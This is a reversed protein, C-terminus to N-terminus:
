LLDGYSSVCSFSTGIDLPWRRIIYYEQMVLTFCCVINWYITSLFSIHFKKSNPHSIVICKSLFVFQPVIIHWTTDWAISYEHYITTESRYCEMRYFNLIGVEEYLLTGNSIQRAHLSILTCWPKGLITNTMDYNIMPFNLVLFFIMVRHSTSFTVHATLVNNCSKFVILHLIWM